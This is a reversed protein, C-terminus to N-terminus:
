RRPGPHGGQREVAAMDDASYYAVVQEQYRERSYVDARPAALTDALVRAVEGADQAGPINRNDVGGGLAKAGFATAVVGPHFATFHIDPFDAAHEIRFSATLNNVYAKAASYAARQPAWPIRGLMSSVNVVHGARRARFHPLVAQMGFFVSKVNVRFMEDVDAESLQSPLRSIGRGANNVWADIHGRQEIAQAALREVQAPDTVDTVVALARPGSARAAEELEAQRRAALVPVGGRAAVERALLAGIGDSAGTIVVVKDTLTQDSM